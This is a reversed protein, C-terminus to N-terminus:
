FIPHLQITDTKALGIQDLLAQFEPENRIPDFWPAMKITYMLYFSRQGVNQTIVKLAEEKNGLAMHIQATNFNGGEELNQAIKIAYDRNGFLANAYAEIVKIHADDEPYKLRRKELDALIAESGAGTKIAENIRIYFDLLIHYPCDTGHQEFLKVLEKKALDTQEDFYYAWALDCRAFHAEPDVEVSKEAASISEEMRGIAWMLQSYSDYPEWSDPAERIALRLEQAAASWDWDSFIKIMALQHHDKAFAEDLDIAKQLYIRFQAYAEQSNLVGFGQLLFSEVLGSYAPGYSPDIELVKEYFDIAKYIDDISGRNSHYRGQLYLEYVRPNVAEAENLRQVAEPTLALEIKDVLSRVVDRYLFQINSLREQSEFPKMLYEDNTGSILQVRIKFENGVKYVSGEVLADVKLEQAIQRATKQTGVYQKMTTYPRVKLGTQALKIILEEHMGDVIYEQDDLEIRNEFPLVALRDIKTGSAIISLFGFIGLLVLAITSLALPLRKRLWPRKQPKKLKGKLDIPEPVVLGEHAMAYITRPHADNKFHFKGLSTVPFGEKNKIEQFVKESILVSGSVGLSEVRSALNVSDGIIDAEDMLIDGVHIGIRVPISPAQRFQLQMDVGCKVADVCSDFISLTGDGYYQIIEGKHKLTTPEFISRHHSRVKLGEAESKQMLRTYGQIDTFMIAALRRKYGM